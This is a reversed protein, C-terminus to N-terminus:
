LITKWEAILEGWAAKGGSLIRKAQLFTIQKTRKGTKSRAHALDGKVRADHVAKFWSLSKPLVAPVAGNNLWNGLDPHAKGNAARIFAASLAPHKKSFKQMLVENFTDLMTVTATPDIVKFNQVRLCRQEADALEAGLAKRWNLTTNLGYSAFFGVLVSASPPAKARLGLGLMLLKVSANVDTPPTWMRADKLSLTLLALALCRALDENKGKIGDELLPICDSIRYPKNADDDDDYRFLKHIVINRVNEDAEDRLLQVADRPGCRRGRFALVAPAPQISKEESRRSASQVVRRYAAQSHSPECVDLAEIFNAAAADYTPDSKPAQLLVEAADRNGPFKKLYEAFVYSCDPRAAILPTIRKLVSLRPSLRLLSYKFKTEDVIQDVKNKRAISKTFMSYLLKQSDKSNTEVSHIVASPLMKTIQEVSDAKGWVIKQAQPVLGMEKSALDLVLLSKRLPIEGKAMLKIDDIYRLYVVNRFKLADFGFLVCEALFASAEPGQPIGHRLHRGAINTTWRALCTRLLLLLEPNKVRPEIRSCLLNHDILEYCSVLDFDAIHTNGKKFASTAFKTYEMYGKKWSRFFFKSNSGAYIAGFAKSSAFAKQVPLMKDAIVNVIAQYVILDRFTLLTLPRLIGSKKPNFVLVPESPIYTGKSIDKIIDKLNETLSMNYSPFIHVYHQKYDKHSGRVLREFALTFNALSLFSRPYPM